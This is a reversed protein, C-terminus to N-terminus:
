DSGNMSMEALCGAKFAANASTMSEETQEPERMEAREWDDLQLMAATKYIMWQSRREQAPVFRNEHKFCLEVNTGTISHAEDSKCGNYLGDWDEEEQQQQQEGYITWRKKEMQEWHEGDQHHPPPPLCLSVSESFLEPIHNTKSKNTWM